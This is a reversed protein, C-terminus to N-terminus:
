YVMTVLCFTYYIFLYILLNFLYILIFLFFFLFLLVEDIFRKQYIFKVSNMIVECNYEIDSHTQLQNKQLHLVLMDNDGLIQLAKKYEGAQSSLDNIAIQGL